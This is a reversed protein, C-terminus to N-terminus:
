WQTPTWKEKIGNLEEDTLFFMVHGCQGCVYVDTEVAQKFVGHIQPMLYAADGGFRGQNFFLEDSGCSACKKSSDM